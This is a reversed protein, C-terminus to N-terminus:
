YRPMNDLNFGLAALQDRGEPTIKDVTW